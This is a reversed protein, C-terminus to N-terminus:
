TRVKDASVEIAEGGPTAVLATDGGNRIVKVRVFGITPSESSLGDQPTVYHKAAVGEYPENGRITDVAFVAEGSFAGSYLNCRMNTLTSM